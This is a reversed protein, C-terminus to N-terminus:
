SSTDEIAQNIKSHQKVSEVFFNFDNTDPSFGPNPMLKSSIHGKTDPLM